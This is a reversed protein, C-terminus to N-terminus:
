PLYEKITIRSQLVGGYLQAGASGNFTTTGAANGGARVRFTTASITGATMFYKFSLCINGAATSVIAGASALANAISDQFLSACMNNGVSSTLQITVDIELTSNINKPTITRTMYEDGETIQPITNDIPVLTTGTAVVGTQTTVIQGLQQAGLLKVNGVADISVANVKSGAPGVQLAFTGDNGGTQALGTSADGATLVSAVM